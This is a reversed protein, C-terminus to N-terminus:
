LYICKKKEVVSQPTSRLIVMNINCNLSTGMIYTKASILLSDTDCIKLHFHDNRCGYFELMDCLIIPM